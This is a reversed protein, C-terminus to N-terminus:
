PTLPDKLLRDYLRLHRELANRYIAHNGADPEFTQGLHDAADEISPLYGLSQLARLAAGRSTAEHESSAILKRGLVDATIPMWVPRNLIAGGNVVIEAANPAVPRLLRDLVAFRYSVAEMSARLIDIPSTRLSLGVIAGRADARYDPSREGDLFPLVTLGHGDAKAQAVAELSQKRKGLALTDQLWRMLSGGNSLAGGVIIHERDLRYRWLGDPPPVGNAKWLVRLAGSTGIMLAFRRDSSCNSGVNSCAGDGLAPYWPVNKLEPWRKAYSAKLGTAPKDADVLTGLQEASVPLAALVQEDWTCADQNFLGTASAMSLSALPQGFLKLFLYEGFSLWHKARKFTKSDSESLWLLKAPLYSSHLMCGTRAHVAAEDLRTKLEEAAQQSRTDAWTYVPTVPRGNSGVGMLSHWFTSIGVGAIRRAHKGAQALVQDIARATRKLLADADTEVGGDKTLTMEHLIEAEWGNAWNGQQDWLMARVSSTGIDLSLVLHTDGEPM